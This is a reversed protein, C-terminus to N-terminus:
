RPKSLAEHISMLRAARQRTIGAKRAASSINGGTEGLATMFATLEHRHREFWAARRAGVVSEAAGAETEPELAPAGRAVRRPSPDVGYVM